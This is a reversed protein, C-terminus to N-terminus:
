GKESNEHRGPHRPVYRLLFYSAVALSPCSVPAHGSLALDLGLEMDQVIPGTGLDIPHITDWRRGNVPLSLWSVPAWAPPSTRSACPLNPPEALLRPNV